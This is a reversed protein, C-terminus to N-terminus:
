DDFAGELATIMMEKNAEDRNLSGIIKFVRGNHRLLHASTIERAPNYRVRIDHTIQEQRSQAISISKESAPRISAWTEAIVVRGLPQGYSDLADARQLVELRHKLAGAKM